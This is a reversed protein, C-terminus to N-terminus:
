ELVRVGGEECGDVKEGFVTMGMKTEPYKQSNHVKPCLFLRELICVAFSLGM